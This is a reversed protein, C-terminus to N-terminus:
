YKHLKEAKNGSRNWIKECLEQKEKINKEM